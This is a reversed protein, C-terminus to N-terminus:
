VDVNIIAHFSSNNPQNEAVIPDTEIAGIGDALASTIFNLPFRTASHAYLAAVTGLATKGDTIICKRCGETVNDRKSGRGM